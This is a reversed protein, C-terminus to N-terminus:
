EGALLAEALGSDIVLTDALRGKLLARVTETKHRGSATVVKNPIRKYQNFSIALTRDVLDTDCEDGNQDFFRLVLDGYVNKSKLNAVEPDTLYTITGLPTTIEPYFSGVGSLSITIKDFMEFIAQVKMENRIADAAAKSSCLGNLKMGYRTGSFVKAIRTVLTQVDLEYDLSYISGHLTVFETDRKQSPNLYNILHYITGGWAIGLVDDPKITRQIYRAGEHAVAKKIDEENDLGEAAAIIVDALGYRVALEESMALHREHAANLSITIVGNERASKLLRSVTAASVGLAQAVEGQSMERVHHLYAARATLFGSQEYVKQRM